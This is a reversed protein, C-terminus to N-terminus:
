RRLPLPMISRLSAGEALWSIGFALVSVVEGIYLPTLIWIHHWGLLGAVAVFVVAVVIVGGCAYHLLRKVPKGSDLGTAERRAVAFLFSVAALGLIFIAAFIFHITAAPTEGLRQQLATCGVPTPSASPGCMVAGPPLDPRETPIFAVGLVALGAVTSAWYAPTHQGALYTILLVGTVCLIGVFFDRMSTHYYASLSGRVQVTGVLFFEGVVLIVPLLIGMIGVATRIVRYSRFYPDGSNNNGAGGPSGAVIETSTAMIGGLYGRQSRDTAQRAAASGDGAPRTLLGETAFEGAHVLRAM